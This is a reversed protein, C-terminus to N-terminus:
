AAVAHAREALARPADALQIAAAGLVEARAGLASGVVRVAAGAPAITRRAVVERIPGLLVEGAEALEGGIVVLEPNFLNV